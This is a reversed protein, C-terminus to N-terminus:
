DSEEKLAKLLNYFDIITENRGESYIRYKLENIVKILDDQNIYVGEPTELKKM